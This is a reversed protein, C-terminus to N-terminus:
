AADKAPRTVTSQARAATILRDVEDDTLDGHEEAFAALAERLRHQRVRAQAAEAIWTSISVDQAHAAARVAGALTAELSISLKESAM